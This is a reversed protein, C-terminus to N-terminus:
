SGEKDLHLLVFVAYEWLGERELQSAYDISLRDFTRVSEMVHEESTGFGFVNVLLDLLHWQLRVDMLTKGYAASGALCAAPTAQEMFVKM